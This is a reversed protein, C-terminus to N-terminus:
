IPNNDLSHFRFVLPQEKCSGNFDIISLLFYLVISMIPKKFDMNSSARGYARIFSMITPTCPIPFVLKSSCSLCSPIVLFFVSTLETKYICYIFLIAYITLVPRFPHAIFVDVHFCRSAGAHRRDAHVDAIPNVLLFDSVLGCVAWYRKSGPVKATLLFIVGRM